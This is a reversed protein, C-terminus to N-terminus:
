RVIVAKTLRLVGTGGGSVQICSVRDNEGLYILREGPALIGDSTTAATGATTIKVHCYETTALHYRGETQAATTNASAGIDIGVTTDLIRLTEFDIIDFSM